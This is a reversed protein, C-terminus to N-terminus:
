PQIQGLWLVTQAGQTVFLAVTDANVALTEGGGQEAQYRNVTGALVPGALWASGDPSTWTLIGGGAEGIALLGGDFAVLGHVATGGGGPLAVTTWTLGDASTWAMPAGAIDGVAVFGGGPAGAVSRMIGGALAPAAPSALWSQGNTSVWSAATLGAQREGVAVFLDDAWVADHINVGSTSFDTTTPTTQVWSTPPTWRWTGGQYEAFGRNLAVLEADSGVLDMMGYGITFFPNTSEVFEWTMVDTTRWGLPRLYDIPGFFTGFSLLTDGFRAMRGMMSPDAPWTGFSPDIGLQAITPSPVAHPVWANGDASTWASLAGPTGGVAVFQGQDETVATVTGSFTQDAWVISIPDSTQTPSLGPSSSAQGTASPGLSGSASPSVSPQCAVTLAGALAILCLSRNLSATDAMGGIM